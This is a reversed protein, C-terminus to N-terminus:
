FLTCSNYNQSFGNLNIVENKRLGALAMLAFMAQTQPPLNALFLDTEEESLYRPLPRSYPLRKFKILPENCRPPIQEWAWKVLASLCLLELNIERSKLGSQKIRLAKYGELIGSTIRDPYMSGYFPILHAFFMRKKDRYTRPSQQREVYPLYAEVLDAITDRNAIKLGLKKKIEREAQYAQEETGQFLPRIRKKQEPIYIYLEWSNRDARWRPM